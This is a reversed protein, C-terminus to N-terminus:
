AITEFIRDGDQWNQAVFLLLKRDRDASEESSNRLKSLVDPVEGGGSIFKTASSEPVNQCRDLAFLSLEFLLWALRL